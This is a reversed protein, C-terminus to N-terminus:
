YKHLNKELIKIWSPLIGPFVSMYNGRSIVRSSVTLILRVIHVYETIVELFNSALEKFCLKSIKVNNIRHMKILIFQENMVGIIARKIYTRYM